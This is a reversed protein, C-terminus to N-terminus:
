DAPQFGPRVANMAEDLVSMLQEDPVNQFREGLRDMSELLQRRVQARDEVVQEDAKPLAISVQEDDALDRGFLSRLWNRVSKDLDKAKRVVSNSIPAKKPHLSEM